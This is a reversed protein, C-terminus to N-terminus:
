FGWNDPHVKKDDPFPERIKIKESSLVFKDPLFFDIDKVKVQKMQTIKDVQDKKIILCDFNFYETQKGNPEDTGVYFSFGKSTEIQLIRDGLDWEYSFHNFHNDVEYVLCNGYKAKLHGLIKKVDTEIPLEVECYIAVMCTDMDTLVWVKNFAVSDLIAITDKTSSEYQYGYQESHVEVTFGSSDFQYYKLEEFDPNGVSDTLWRTLSESFLLPVNENFTVKELDFSCNKTLVNPQVDQKEAIQCASLLYALVVFTLIRM